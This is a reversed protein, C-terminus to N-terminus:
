AFKLRLTALRHPPLTFSLQSGELQLPAADSPPAPQEHVDAWAAELLPLSFRLSVPTPQGASEYLRLILGGTQGDEPAKVAALIASASDMSLFSWRQPQEAASSTVDLPQTYAIAAGILAPPTAEPSVAVAFRLKHQGLEPHPDPDFSSRILTLALANADGRFGYSGESILQVAPVASVPLAAGWSNGPVDQERGAREVVGFPIDYLYARVPQALALCFNLQPVGESPRGLEHWDADADYELRRSGADLSVTVSLKSRGSAVEYSFSQRLPGATDQKLLRVNESLPQIAMYRGVVWATMGQGADEQIRRFAGGRAPDVLETASAKDWLSILACSHTDFVAKLLENELQIAPPNEVRPDLPFASSNLLSASEDLVLSAFGCAPVSAEVLLRLYSHGWYNNFGKDMAQHRLLQGQEDRVSLRQLDGNWDWVVLEVTQRREQATPNFLHFLRRKGGGRSVQSLRFDEVGFGVGAGESIADPTPRAQGGPQHTLARFARSKQSSAAALTQQFLGRAYERTDIVGSGPIIDHFQNFLTNKWATAFTEAPYSTGRLAALASFTESAYLAAESLRNARKIRSQSTYCGTFVFNLEGSFTPLRTATQAAKAFFEAYTGFHLSPYIPWTAMDLLREVDRRTPGGGHDGVGYVKLISDLGYKQCFAPAYLALSPEIYGLYWTPERYVLISRGSPAAWHYLNDMEDGRCHYYYKVGGDALIEPVNAHHGFTDPEFDLQFNDAQLGLLDSLYRRTYLLHRAQSEGNPLNKDAEVWTSAAVEWRGENVRQRIEELMEPAYQEVIQYVSAQSQSFTFAPYERMLDLMTRFTDLTIAVTEDWRWMWNMDIHAHAVCIVNYSKAATALPALLAEAQLAAGKTIVGESANAQLLATLAQEVAGDYQGAAAKSVEHAYEIQYLARGAWYHALQPKLAELRPDFM